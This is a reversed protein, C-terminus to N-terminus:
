SVVKSDTHRYTYGGRDNSPSPDTFVNGHWRFFQLVRRKRHPGDRISPLYAMLEECFKKNIFFCRRIIDVVLKTRQKKPTMKCKFHGCLKGQVSVM